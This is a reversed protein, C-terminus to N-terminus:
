PAVSRSRARSISHWLNGVGKREWMRTELIEIKHCALMLKRKLRYVETAYGKADEVVVRMPKGEWYVFDAVYRCILVGNVTLDFSVQRRLGTIKEARELLQLEQWRLM